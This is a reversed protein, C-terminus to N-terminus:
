VVLTKKLGLLGRRALALNGRERDLALYLFLSGSDVPVILHYQDGLTILIDEIGGEVGIDKMVRMKARVVEKNGAAAAEIPFDRTAESGLCLGSDYDVLAAALAGESSMAQSITETITTQSMLPREGRQEDLSKSAREDQSFLSFFRDHNLTLVETAAPHQCRDFQGKVVGSITRKHTVHTLSVVYGMLQAKPISMPYNVVSHHLIRGGLYLQSEITRGLRSGHETQVHYLRGRRPVSDNLSPILWTNTM